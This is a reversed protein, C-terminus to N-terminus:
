NKKKVQFVGKDGSESIYILGDVLRRSTFDRLRSYLRYDGGVRLEIDNLNNCDLEVSM